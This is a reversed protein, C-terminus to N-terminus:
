NKESLFEVMHQKEKLTRMIDKYNQIYKHVIAWFKDSHNMQQLHALEHVIVYDIIEPHFVVLRWNLNIAKRSSCSGWRTRQERFKLEAPLLNMEQYLFQVRSTLHKIAERKYFHRIEALATPHEQILSNASWEDRPIHLLLTEDTVSVFPKKNLTIVVKLKRNIGLYPFEEYAQIKKDPFQSKLEEFKKLNKEIWDKKSMLFDVIVKQSTSKAAVVKIPKYPYLYISVSRRLARRHVEVTWKSFIFNETDKM